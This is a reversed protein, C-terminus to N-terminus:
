GGKNMLELLQKYQLLQDLPLKFNVDLRIGQFVSGPSEASVRAFGGLERDFSFPLPHAPKGDLELSVVLEQDVTNMRIKAWEYAFDKLAEAALDLQGYQPSDPPVGATLIHTGEIRLVGNEGPTSYLFGNDFSLSGHTYHVPIRGNVSGGGKTQSMGFQGLAQALDVRDCYLDVLYEEVGPNIRFAQTGVKGGAWIATCTEVLISHLAELQFHIDGQELVISGTQLTDFSARQDPDSRLSLVDMFSLSVRAGALSIKSQEHNLRLDKIHLSLPCRPVGQPLTLKAELDLNTEGTWSSLQPVFQSIKAPLTIHQKGKIEVWSQALDFPALHGKLGIKAALLTLDLQGNLAIGHDDQVIRSSIQALDIKNWALKAQVFGPELAVQPWSMPVNLTSTVRADGSQGVVGAKLTGQVQFEPSTTFQAQVELSTSSVNLGPQKFVVKGGQMSFSGQPNTGLTANGLINVGNLTASLTDQSLQVEGLTVDGDLRTGTPSILAALTFVSSELNFAVQDDITGAMALVQGQIQLTIGQSDQGAELSGFLEPAINLSPIKGFAVRWQCSFKQRLFDFHLDEVSVVLAIPSILELPALGLALASGDWHAQASFQGEQALYNSGLLTYGRDLTMNAGVVLPANHGGAVHIGLGVQGGLPLFFGPLLSALSALSASPVSCALTVDGTKLHADIRLDLAQGALATHIQTTLQESGDLRGAMSIPLSIHLQSGDLFIRGDVFFEDIIPFFGLKGKQEDDNNLALLKPLGAISWQENNEVLHVQADVLEIREIRGQVLDFFNWHVHLRRITMGAEPGLSISHIDVGSLGAREIKAEVHPTDLIEALLPLAYRTGLWPLALYLAWFLIVSMALVLTIGRGICSAWVRSRPVPKHSSMGYM